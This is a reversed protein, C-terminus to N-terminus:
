KTEIEKRKVQRIRRTKELRGDREMDRLAWPVFYEVFLEFYRCDPQFPHEKNWSRYREMEKMLEATGAFVSEGLYENLRRAHIESLEGTNIMWHVRDGSAHLVRMMQRLSSRQVLVRLRDQRAPHVSIRYSMVEDVNIQGSYICM